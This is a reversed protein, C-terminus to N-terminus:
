EFYERLIEDVVAEDESTFKHKKSASKERGAALRELSQRLYQLDDESFTSQDSAAKELRMTKEKREENERIRENCCDNDSEMDAKVFDRNIRGTKRENEEKARNVRMDEGPKRRFVKRNNNVSDGESRIFKEEESSRDLRKAFTNVCYETLQLRLRERKDAVDSLVHISFGAIVCVATVIITKSTEAESAQFKGQLVYLGSGLLLCLCAAKLSAKGATETNMLLIRSEKLQRDVFLSIDEIGKNLRYTNEFKNKIQQLFAYRVGLMNETQKIMQQYYIGATLTILIGSVTIVTMVYVPIDSTLFREM